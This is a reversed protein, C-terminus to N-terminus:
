LETVENLEEPIRELEIVERTELFLKWQTYTYLFLGLICLSFLNGLDYGKKFKM